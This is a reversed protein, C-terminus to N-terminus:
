NDFARNSDCWETEKLHLHFTYKPVRKFKALRVKSMSWFGEIGNIHINFIKYFYIFLLVVSTTIIITASCATHM